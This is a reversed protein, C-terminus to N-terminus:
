IRTFNTEEREHLTGTNEYLMQAKSKKRKKGKKGSTFMAGNKALKAYLMPHIHLEMIEGMSIFKGKCLEIRRNSCREWFGDGCVRTRLKMQLQFAHFLMGHHHKCFKSFRDVTFPQQKNLQDLEYLVSRAQPDIEMHKSGYLDTLLSVIEGHSLFGSTNEDYLDFTFVELSAKELTCYNWCSLLFERFDIKGTHNMDFANFVRQTYATKEIDLFMCLEFLDISGSRSSDVEQFVSLLQRIESNSLKLAYFQEYWDRPIQQEVSESCGM